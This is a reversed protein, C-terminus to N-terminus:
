SEDSNEKKYKLLDRIEFNRTIVATVFGTKDKKIEECVAEVIHYFLVKKLGYPINDNLIKNQEETLQINTVRPVYKDPM